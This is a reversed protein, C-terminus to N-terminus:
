QTGGAAASYGFDGFRKEGQLCHAREGQFDASDEATPAAPQVASSLPGKM